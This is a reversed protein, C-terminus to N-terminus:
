LFLSDDSLVQDSFSNPLLTTFFVQLMRKSIGFISLVILQRGTPLLLINNIALCVGKEAIQYERILYCATTRDYLLLLFRNSQSLIAAHLVQYGDAM